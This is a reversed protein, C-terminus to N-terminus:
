PKAEFLTCGFDAPPFFLEDCMSGFSLATCNPAIVDKNHWHKCHQCTKSLVPGGDAPLLSRDPQIHWVKGPYTGYKQIAEDIATESPTM